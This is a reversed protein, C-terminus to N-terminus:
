KKVKECLGKELPWEMRKDMGRTLVMVVFYTKELRTTLGHFERGASITFVVFTLSKLRLSALSLRDLNKVRGVNM